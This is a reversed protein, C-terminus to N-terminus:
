AISYRLFFFLYVWLGGLFHWYTLSVQYGVSDDSNYRKKVTKVLVVILSILGGILHAIHLGTILYLFSSEQTSEKGTLYFGNDHLTVWGMYQTFVFSLGLILTLVVSIKALGYNEKKIAILGFHFVFSSVIIIYTSITFGIPMPIPIFSGGGQSVIVASTMGGFFMVISVLAIWLLPKSNKRKLEDKYHSNNSVITAM